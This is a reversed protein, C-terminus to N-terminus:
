GNELASIQYFRFETGELNDYHWSKWMENKGLKQSFDSKLAYLVTLNARFTDFISKVYFRLPLFIRSIECQAGTVSVWKLSIQSGNHVRISGWLSLYISQRKPVFNVNECRRSKKLLIYMSYLTSILYNKQWEYKVHFILSKSHTVECLKQTDWIKRWILNTLLCHRRLDLSVPSAWKRSFTSSRKM